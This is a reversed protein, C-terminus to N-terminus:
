SAHERTGHQAANRALLSCVVLSVVQPICFRQRVTGSPKAAKCVSSSSLAELWALVWDLDASFSMMDSASPVPPWGGAAIVWLYLLFAFTVARPQMLHSKHQGHLMLPHSHATAIDRRCPTLEM